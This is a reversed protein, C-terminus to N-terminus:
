RKSQRTKKKNQNTKKEAPYFIVQQRRVRQNDQVEVDFGVCAETCELESATNESIFRM